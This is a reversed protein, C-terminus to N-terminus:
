TTPSPNIIGFPLWNTGDCVWGIPADSAPVTNWAIAGKPKYNSGDPSTHVKDPVFNTYDPSDTNGLWYATGFSVYNNERLFLGINEYSKINYMNYGNNLSNNRFLVHGGNNTSQLELFNYSSASAVNNSITGRSVNNISICTYSCFDFTNNDIIFGYLTDVNICEGKNENGYIDTFHNGKIVINSYVVVLSGVVRVGYCGIRSEHKPTRGVVYNDCIFINTPYMSNIDNGRTCIIGCYFGSVKNAIIFINDGSHTDIGEWYGLSTWVVNNSIIVNKCENEKLAGTGQATCSLGIGYSNTYGTYTGVNVENGDIVGYYCRGYCMIGSYGTDILKCNKISFYSVVDLMIVAIKNSSNSKINEIHINTANRIFIESYLDSYGTKTRKGGKFSIGEIRINEVNEGYFIFQEETPASITGNGMICMNSHLDIRDTVLYEGATVCILDNEAFCNRFAETDDTVGDGVAGYMKPTVFTNNLEAELIIDRMANERATVEDNIAERLENDANERTTAENSIAENLDNDANERTTAENSIAERLENDANERLNAEENIAERLENDNSERATAEESIQIAFDDFCALIDENLEGTERLGAILERITERLNNKMYNVADGIVGDQYKMKLDVKDIFDQFEQRIAVKFVEYDGNREKIFTEITENIHDVFQNYEDILQNMAGYIKATQEIATGSEHDYLAPLKDTIVWHPLKIM